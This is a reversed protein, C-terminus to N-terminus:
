RARRTLTPNIALKTSELECRLDPLTCISGTFTVAVRGDASVMLQRGALELRLSFTASAGTEGYSSERGVLNMWSSSTPTFLMQFRKHKALWARVKAHRHTRYNDAIVHIDLDDPTHRDIQNLLRLWEVQTQKQERRYVLKGELYSMAAFLCVTGHRIFDHM